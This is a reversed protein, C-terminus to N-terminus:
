ILAITLGVNNAKKYDKGFCTQYYGIDDDEKDEGENEDEMLQTVRSQVFEDEYMEKM